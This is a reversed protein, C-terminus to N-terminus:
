VKRDMEMSIFELKVRDPHNMRLMLQYNVDDACDQARKRAQESTEVADTKPRIRCTKFVCALAAVAEVQSFKKGPCNQPGDSWPLFSGKQPVFLEEETAEGGTTGPRVIWRSPRWVHSDNGPWYRPDTQVGHIMLITETGPPIALVRDGVQLHQAKESTVKPLGTIPGYLRLTELLVARCRKLKPFLEYGWEEVSNGQSQTIAIIEEALWEQVDAQAALLMVAFTLAIATTDYGAFNIVFLNGLIEDTSLAGKRPKAVDKSGLQQTTKQDRVLQTILGGSGPQGREIAQREERVMRVMFGKLATAARGIRALSKPMMPGTLVRYPILMFQIAHKHVIFLADRYSEIKENTTRLEASGRFNHGSERFAASALVNLTFTQMDEQM